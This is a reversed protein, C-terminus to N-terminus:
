MYPNAGIDVISCGVVVNMGLARAAAIVDPRDAGPNFWVERAPKKALEPLLHMCVDPPLYVSVRDLLPVPVQNLKAFVPVGEITPERPHIPFVEYGQALYARVCRNGFKCRNRSAGVVAISPKNMFKTTTPAITTCSTNLQDLQLDAV